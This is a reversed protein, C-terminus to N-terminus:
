GHREEWLKRASRLAAGHIRLIHRASYNKGTEALTDQVQTWSLLDIYRLLLIMRHTTVPIDEVFQEIELVRSEAEALKERYSDIVEAYAILATDQHKDGGGGGPMGSCARTTSECKAKTEAVKRKLRAVDFRLGRYSELYERVEDM